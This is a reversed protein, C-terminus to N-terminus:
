VFIFALCVPMIILGLCGLALAGYRRWSPEDNKTFEYYAFGPLIFGVITSGTSGAVSLIISIDSVSLAVALTIILFIM